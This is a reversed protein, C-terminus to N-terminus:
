GAALAAMGLAGAALCYFGLLGLRGASLVKVLCAIAAYGVLASVAVGMVAVWPTLGAAPGGAEVAKVLVAGGVAPASLLLSFEAAAAPAFGLRRGAVITAGSRSIGPVLAVAQAVGVLLGRLVTVPRPPAEKLRLALLGAGTVCLMGCVAAPASFLAEIRDHLLAYAVGAPVTGAVIAAAEIRGAGGRFSERAVRLIAARYFALVSILTGAHLMVELGAGPSEVGLLHKGLVLHGSSSVPLFETVGQLAALALVQGPTTV